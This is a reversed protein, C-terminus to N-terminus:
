LSSVVVAAKNCSVKSVHDVVHARRTIGKPECGLVVARVTSMQTRTIRM